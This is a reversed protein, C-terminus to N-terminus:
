ATEAVPLAAGLAGAYEAEGPILFEIGSIAKLARVFAANRALGGVLVVCDKAPKTIDHIVSAARVAAASIVAGGVEERSVGHNLLSLADLEAMVVCGENVAAEKPAGLRSMDELSMGLRRAMSELFLGLGAACKQNFTYENIRNKEGLVAAMIEDAGASVVCTAGPYLFRAAKAAAVQESILVDAIAANHKGKGTAAIKVVDARTAGADRLAAQYAQEVMGGRDAGGSSGKARGAIQRDKLIIVKIHEVGIDIGATIM